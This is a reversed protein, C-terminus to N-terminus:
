VTQSQQPQILLRLQYLFNLLIQERSDLLSSTQKREQNLTKIQFLNSPGTSRISQILRDQYKFQTSLWTVFDLNSSSPPPLQFLRQLITYLVRLVNMDQIKLLNDFDEITINSYIWTAPNQICISPDSWWWNGASYWDKPCINLIKALHRVLEEVSYSPFEKV